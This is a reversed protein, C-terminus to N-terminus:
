KWIFTNWKLILIQASCYVRHIGFYLNIKGWGEEFHSHNMKMDNLLSALEDVCIYMYLLQQQTHTVHKQVKSIKISPVTHIYAQKNTPFFLRIINGINTHRLMAMSMSKCLLIVHTHWRMQVLIWMYAFVCARMFWWKWIHNIFVFCM